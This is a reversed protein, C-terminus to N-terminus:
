VEVDLLRQREAAVDFDAVPWDLDLSDLAEHLM